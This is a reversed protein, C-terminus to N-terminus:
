WYSTAVVEVAVPAHDVVKIHLVAQMNKNQWDRPASKVLEKMREQSSVFEAAAQTGPAGIGAVILMPGGTKSQVLRSILAYDDTASGAPINNVSWGVDPKNRSEIRTGEKFVYPLERTVQLTWPNNFGGILIAPRNRLDGVVVDAGSRLMYPKQWSDMLRAIQVAAALDGGTIFTNPIPLLDNTRISGNPPLEVLFEPGNYASGHAARYRALYEPTFVYAANAGLYLLVPQGAKTVPAFFVSQDSNATAFHWCLLGVGFVLLVSVLWWVRGGIPSRQDKNVIEPPLEQAVAIVPPKAHDWGSEPRFFARYSGPPLQIHQRVSGPECGQYYQALRKRVDAARVRVIPDEATDYDATRGFVRMGIIREKLPAGDSALSHEVIYRLLDSCQKSGHFHKSSLIENLL